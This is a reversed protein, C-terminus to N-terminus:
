YNYINAYLHYLIGLRMDRVPSPTTGVVALVAEKGLQPFSPHNCLLLPFTEQLMGSLHEM